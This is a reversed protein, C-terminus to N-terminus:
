SGTRWINKRIWYIDNETFISNIILNFENQSLVTLNDPSIPKASNVLLFITEGVYPSKLYISHEGLRIGSFYGLTECEDYDIAEWQLTGQYPNQYREPILQTLKNFEDNNFITKFHYVLAHLVNFRLENIDSYTKILQGGSWNKVRRLFNNLNEERGEDNESIFLLRPVNSQQAAEYEMQTVSIKRVNNELPIYGYRKKYIGIFIDSHSAEYICKEEPTTAMAPYFESRSVEHAMTHLVESVADREAKM